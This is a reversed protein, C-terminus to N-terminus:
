SNMEMWIIIGIIIVIAVAKIFRRLMVKPVDKDPIYDKSNEIKRIQM